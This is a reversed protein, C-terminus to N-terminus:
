PLSNCEFAKLRASADPNVATLCFQYDPPSSIVYECIPWTGSASPQCQMWNDSNKCYCWGNTTADNVPNACCRSEPSQGSAFKANVKGQQQATALYQDGALDSWM